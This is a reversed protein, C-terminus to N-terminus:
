FVFKQFMVYSLSQVHAIYNFHYMVCVCVCVCVFVCARVCVRVCLM